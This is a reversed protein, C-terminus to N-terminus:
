RTFVVPETLAKELFGQLATILESQSTAAVYDGTGSSCAQLSYAISDTGSGEVIPIMPAPYNPHSVSNLYAQHMLPYYPTYAVYVTYGMDKFRQCQTYDFAQRSWWNAPPPDDEFGDTVLFLVKRPSLASTGAGASTVYSSALSQMITTFATDNNTSSVAALPPTIGTDTVSPYTPPRGVKAEATTFDSGAECGYTQAVCGTPYVQTIADEFTYIGVSLNVYSQSDAAMQQLTTIAANKMIDFRLTVGNRRAMGFLDATGGLASTSATNTWHCAFACPPGPRPYVGYTKALVGACDTPALADSTGPTPTFTSYSLGSPTAVPCPTVGDYTGGRWTCAYQVYNIGSSNSWSALSASTPYFANSSDCASQTSLTSIDADTAGIEMSSSNDLLLVVEVYPATVVSAAVAVSVQYHALGFLTGFVSKVQATATLSATVTAGGTVTVSPTVNALAAATNGLMVTFWHTGAAVGETQYSADNALEGAAAIKIAQVVASNAASHIATRAQYYLAADIALGVIGVLPIAMLGFLLAIASRRDRGFRRATRRLAALRAQCRFPNFSM